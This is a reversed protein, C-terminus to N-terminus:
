FLLLYDMIVSYTTEQSYLQINPNFKRVGGGVVVEFICQLRLKVQQSM